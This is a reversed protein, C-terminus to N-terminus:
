LTNLIMCAATIITTATSMATLTSMATATIGCKVSPEAKFVVGPLGMGNLEKLFEEKDQILELMAATLMDGAAGMGCDIYLTRM